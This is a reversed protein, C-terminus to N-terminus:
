VIRFQAKLVKAAASINALVGSSDLALATQGFRTMRLGTDYQDSYWEEADGFQTRILGGKEESLAVLHAALYMEIQELTDSSYGENLLHTTVLNNATFLMNSAVVEDSISTTVIEKVREASTRSAM